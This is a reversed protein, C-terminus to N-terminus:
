SYSNSSNHVVAVLYVVIVVVVNDVMPLVEIGTVVRKEVTVTVMVMMMLMLMMWLSLSLSLVAGVAIIENTQEDDGNVENDM